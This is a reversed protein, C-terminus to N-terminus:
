MKSCYRLSRFYNIGLYFLAICFSIEPGVKSTSYRSLSVNLILGLYLNTSRQFKMIRELFSGEFLTRSSYKLPQFINRSSFWSNISCKSKILHTWLISGQSKTRKRVGKKDSVQSDLVRSVRGYNHGLLCNHM